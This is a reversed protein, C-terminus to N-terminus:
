YTVTNALRFNLKGNVMSIKFKLDDPDKLKLMFSLVSQHGVIATGPLTFPIDLDIDEGIYQGKTDADRIACYNASTM